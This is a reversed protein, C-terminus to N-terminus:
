LKRYFQVYMDSLCQEVNFRKKYVGDFALVEIECINKENLRESLVCIRTIARKFFDIGEVIPIEEGEYGYAKIQVRKSFVSSSIEIAKIIRYNYNDIFVPEVFDSKVTKNIRSQRSEIYVIMNYYDCIIKEVEIYDELTVINKNILKSFYKDICMVEFTEDIVSRQFLELSKRFWQMTKLMLFSRMNPNSSDTDHRLSDTFTEIFPYAWAIYFDITYINEIPLFIRKSVLGSILHHCCENFLAKITVFTEYEDVFEDNPSTFNADFLDKLHKLFKSATLTSEDEIFITESTNSIQDDVLKFHSLSHIFNQLNEYVLVPSEFYLLKFNLNTQTINEVNFNLKSLRESKTLVLKSFIEKIHRKRIDCGDKELNISNETNKVMVKYNKFNKIKGNYNEFCPYDKLLRDAYDFDFKLFKSKVNASRVASFINRTMLMDLVAIHKENKKDYFCDEQIFAASYSCNEVNTYSVTLNLLYKRDPNPDLEWFDNVLVSVVSVYVPDSSIIINMFLNFINSVSTM